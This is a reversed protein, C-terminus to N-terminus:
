KKMNEGEVTSAFAFLNDKVEGEIRERERGRKMEKNEKQIIHIFRKTEVRVNEKEMKKEKGRRERNREGQIM